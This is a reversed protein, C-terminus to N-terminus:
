LAIKVLLLGMCAILGIFMWVLNPFSLIFVKGQFSQFGLTIGSVWFLLFYPPCLLIKGTLREVILSMFQQVLCTPGILLARIKNTLTQWRDLTPSVNGEKLDFQYGVFDLVQKRDLESKEMNVLWGLDQWLAVLTQTHQLCTQHIQGLGVLRRPVPPNKYGKTFGGTQSRQDSCHVELSSHVSWITTSQIPINQGICSTESIKKILKTHTYLLLCGQFRHVHGVGSDTHLDLDKRTDGNQIKRGQLIQQSQESSTYTEM